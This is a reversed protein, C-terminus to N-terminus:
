FHAIFFSLLHWASSWLPFVVTQPVKGHYLEWGSHKLHLQSSKQPTGHEIGQTKVCPQISFLFQRHLWLLSLDSAQWYAYCNSLSGSIRPLTIKSSGEIEKLDGKRGAQRGHSRPLFSSSSPNKGWFPKPFCFNVATAKFFLSSQSALFFRLDQSFFSAVTEIIVTVLNLDLKPGFHWGSLHEQLKPKWLLQQIQSFIKVDWCKVLGWIRSSKGPRASVM